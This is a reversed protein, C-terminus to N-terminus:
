LFWLFVLVVVHFRGPGLPDRSQMFITLRECGEGGSRHLSSSVYNVILSLFSKLTVETNNNRRNFERIHGPM